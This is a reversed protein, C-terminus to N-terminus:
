KFKKLGILELLALGIFQPADIFVRRWLRRPEQSLRWLWEFGLNGIWTPSRKVGGTAFKFSAGVGVTVPVNLRHRHEFMWREQKPTGLGIWLVDPRLRNIEEVISDDEETTATRFAPSHVGVVTQNPFRSKVREGLLELTEDTDGYFFHRYGKSNTSELFQEMLDPGTNKKKIHAGKIRAVLVVLIGDPAFLQASNLIAKFKPDRHGEMLGHMGTNVVYHYSDHESEIWYDMTSIVDPIEVLDVKSGLICISQNESLGSASPTSDTPM